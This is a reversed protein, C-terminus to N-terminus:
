EQIVSSSPLSPTSTPFVETTGSCFDRERERQGRERGREKERGRGRERGRERVCVCVPTYMEGRSICLLVARVCLDTM